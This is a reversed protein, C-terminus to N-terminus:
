AASFRRCKKQFITTPFTLPVVFPNAFRAIDPTCDGRARASGFPQQGRTCRDLAGRSFERDVIVGQPPVPPVMNRRFGARRVDRAGPRGFILEFLDDRVFSERQDVMVANNATREIFPKAGGPLQPVAIRQRQERPPQM